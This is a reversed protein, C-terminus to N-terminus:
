PNQCFQATHIKQLLEVLQQVECKFADSTHTTCTNHYQGYTPLQVVLEDYHSQAGSFHNEMEKRDEEAFMQSGKCSRKFEEYKTELNKIIQRYEGPRMKSMQLHVCM